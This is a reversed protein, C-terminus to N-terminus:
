KSVLPYLILLSWGM